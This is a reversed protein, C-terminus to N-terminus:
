RNRCFDDINLNLEKDSKKRRSSQLTLYVHGFMLSFVIKFSDWKINGVQM